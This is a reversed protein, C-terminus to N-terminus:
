IEDENHKNLRDINTGPHYQADYEQSLNLTTQSKSPVHIGKEGVHIPVASKKNRMVLWVIAVVIVCVGM